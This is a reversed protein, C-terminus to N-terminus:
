FSIKASVDIHANDGKLSKGTYDIDFSTNAIFGALNVGAKYANEDGAFTIGFEPTVTGTGVAIGYKAATEITMTAALVDDIYAGFVLNPVLSANDFLGVELRKTGNLDTVFAASLGNSTRNWNFFYPTQWENLESKNWGLFMVASVNKADGKMSFGAQPKIYFTDNIAYDYGTMAFFAADEKKGAADESLDLSVGGNLKLNEVATVDVQAAMAYDDKYGAASRFDVDINAINPLAFGVTIGESKNEAAVGDIRYFGTEWSQKGYVATVPAFNGLATDGSTIGVYAIDGFHIKAHDVKLAPLAIGNVNAGSATGSNHFRAPDGDLKIGLDGWVGSGETNKSGTSFLNYTFNLSTSNTFGTKGTELDMGWSVNAWGSFAAVENLAAPEDAFAAFVMALAMLIVLAKKM